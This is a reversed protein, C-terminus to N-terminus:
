PAVLWTTRGETARVRCHEPRVRSYDIHDAGLGTLRAVTLESRSRQPIGWCDCNSWPDRERTIDLTEYQTVPTPRRRRGGIRRGMYGGHKREPNGLLVIRQLHEPAPADPHDAYKDLWDGVAECGASHCRIEFPTPEGSELVSRVATQVDEATSFLGKIRVRRGPVGGLARGLVDWLGLSAGDVTIVTTM